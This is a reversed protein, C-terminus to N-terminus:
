QASPYVVRCVCFRWTVMASSASIGQGDYLSRKPQSAPNVRDDDRLCVHSAHGTGTDIPFLYPTLPANGIPLTTVQLVFHSDITMKLLARLNNSDNAATISPIIQLQISPKKNPLAKLPSWATTQRHEPRTRPYSSAVLDCWALLAWHETTDLCSVGITGSWCCANTSPLRM